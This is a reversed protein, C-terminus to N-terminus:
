EALSKRYLRKAEQLRGQVRLLSALKERTNSWREGREIQLAQRYFAEAAAYRRVRALLDGLNVLRLALDAHAPGLATRTIALSDRLLTEAEAFRRQDFYLVALNSLSQAYDPHGPGQTKERIELSRRYLAEAEAHRGLERYLAGLNNLGAAVSPHDRGSVQEWIAIARRLLPEAEAHNARAALIQGLNNLSAAAEATKSDGLVKAARRLLLEAAADDGEKRLVEALNNLGRALAPPAAGNERIELARQFAQHADRLRGQSCLINGLNTLGIAVDAHGPGLAHEWERVARRLLGEAEGFRFQAAYAMGFNNLTQALRPTPDGGSAAAPAEAMKLAEVYENEAQAFLGRGAFEAARTMHEAWSMDQAQLLPLFLLVLGGQLRSSRVQLNM